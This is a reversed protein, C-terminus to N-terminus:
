PKLPVARVISTTNNPGVELKEGEKAFERRV